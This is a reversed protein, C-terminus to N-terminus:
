PLNSNIASLTTNVGKGVGRLAALAVVAVLAIVLSYEVLSQGRQSTISRYLRRIPMKM